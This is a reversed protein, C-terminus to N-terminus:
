FDILKIKIKQLFLIQNPVPNLKVEKEFITQM